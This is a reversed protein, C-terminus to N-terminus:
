SLVWLQSITLWFIFCFVILQNHAMFNSSFSSMNFPHNDVKFGIFFIARLFPLQNFVDTSRPLSLTRVEILQLDLEFLLHLRLFTPTTALCWLNVSVYEWYLLCFVLACSRVVGSTYTHIPGGPVPFVLHISSVYPIPLQTVTGSLLPCQKSLQSWSTIKNSSTSVPAIGVVDYNLRSVSRYGICTDTLQYQRCQWICLCEITNSDTDSGDVTFYLKVSKMVVSSQSVVRRRAHFMTWTVHGCKGTSLCCWRKPPCLRKCWRIVSKKQQKMM